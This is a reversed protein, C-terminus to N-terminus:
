TEKGKEIKKIAEKSLGFKDLADKVQTVVLKHNASGKKSFTRLTEKLVPLASQDGIEGLCYALNIRLFFEGLGKQNITEYPSGPSIAAIMEPVAESGMGIVAKVAENWMLSFSDAPRTNLYAILSSIDGNQKWEHIKPLDQSMGRKYFLPLLSAIILAFILSILPFIWIRTLGFSFVFPAIGAITIIGWIKLARAWYSIHSSELQDTEGNM